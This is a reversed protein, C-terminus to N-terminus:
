VIHLEYIEVNAVLCVLYAIRALVGDTVAHHFVPIQHLPEPLLADELIQPRLRLVVVEQQGFRGEVRGLVALVRGLDHELSEVDRSEIDGYLNASVLTPKSPKLLKIDKTNIICEVSNIAVM